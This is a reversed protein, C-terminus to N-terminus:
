RSSEAGRELWDLGLVGAWLLVASVAVTEMYVEMYLLAEGQGEGGLLCAFHCLSVLM